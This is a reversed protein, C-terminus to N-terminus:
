LLDTGLAMILLSIKIKIDELWCYWILVDKITCIQPLIVLPMLPFFDQSLYACFFFWLKPGCMREISSKGERGNKWMLISHQSCFMCAFSCPWKNEELFGCFLLRNIQWLSVRESCQLTTMPIIMMMQNYVAPFKWIFCTIDWTLRISAVLRHYGWAERKHLVFYARPSLSNSLKCRQTHYLPPRLSFLGVTSALSFTYSCSSNSSSPSFSSEWM